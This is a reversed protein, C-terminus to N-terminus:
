SENTYIVLTGNQQNDIAIIESLDVANSSLAGSLVDNGNIADQLGSVDTVNLTDNLLDADFNGLDSVDVVQIQSIDALDSADVDGVSSLINDFNAIDGIDGVSADGQNGTVDGVTDSVSNDSGINGVTDSITTDVSDVTTEVTDSVTGTVDGVTDGVTGTVDNLTDGLLGDDSQALAAGSTFAVAAVSALLGRKFNRM